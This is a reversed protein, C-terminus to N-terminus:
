ILVYVSWWTDCKFSNFHSWKFMIYDLNQGNQVGDVRYDISVLSNAFNINNRLRCLRGKYRIGKLSSAKSVYKPTRM